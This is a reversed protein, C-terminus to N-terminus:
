SVAGFVQSRGPQRCLGNSPKSLRVQQKRASRRRMIAAADLAQMRRDVQETNEGAGATTKRSRRRCGAGTSSESFKKLRVGVGAISEDVPVFDQEFAARIQVIWLRIWRL